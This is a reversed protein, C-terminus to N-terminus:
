AAVCEKIAKGAALEALMDDSAKQSISFVSVVPFVGPIRAFSSADVVRLGAVGRVRFKSDLVAMPDDDAGIKNTSTPHHGFTQKHLWEEDEKGCYGQADPGAKCPPELPTIGVRKYVTRIWAITDKMAAMDLESGTAYHNFVIEPPDQPDATRLKVWGKNNVSSGKVMSVGYVGQPEAPLQGVRNDSPWFGRFLFGPGGMLFMDRENNHAPHKSRVMAVGAIGSGANGQGVIPMEQNDMLNQGVGPLHKVVTINLSELHARDGVGLVKTALSRLSVVLKTGARRSEAQIYDRSSYRGGNSYQHNVLGYISQEQDRTSSVANPDRVLLSSMPSTLNLDRAYMDMIRNGVLPVGNRSQMMTGMQTQFWGDFGHGPTGKPMYNNKEIREFIKRMNAAKWSEDGTVEYHYNWDSDSPFWTCMANVMSSGGLTAGRPYYVGLLKSGAPAGTRGVWYKGQPTKWTLHSYENNRPDGDPYHKVFFDWAVSPSYSMGGGPNPSTDGAELLFVSYGAKALNAALVGGGPGSGVVVYDYTDAAAASATPAGSIPTAALLGLSLTSLLGKLSGRKGSSGLM